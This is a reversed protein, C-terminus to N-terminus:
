DILPNSDLAVANGGLASVESRNENMKALKDFFDDVAPALPGPRVHVQNPPAQLLVAPPANATSAVPLTSSPASTDIATSLTTAGPAQAAPALAGEGEGSGHANIVNIVMLADSASIFNDSNVDYYPPPNGAPVPGPGFANLYNIITLADNPAVVGNNDVDFPNNANQWRSDSDTVHLVQTTTPFGGASATITTSRTGDVVHDDVATITFTASPQNAPIVVSVPVTAAGPASSVLTVTLPQSLDANSRTVTGTATGNREPISAPSITLALSAAASQVILQYGGTANAGGAMDGNGTLPDYHINTSNSVGIYYTGAAAFTYQLHADFGATNEGPAAANDNSALQTGQATFLRLYSDLGGPGNQATDIDFDVTQGAAVTFAYMDVDTDPSISDSKTIPTTSIVGLSSAESIADDPDSSTVSVVQLTLQYSGISDPGGATDGNGTLPDYQTNNANSVGIYYTGATAFTYRLYSDFGTQSEGPAAADNNFTIPQGQSNFLWLFSNLGGPGNLPTDIDFDVMQGAAVTFSYLDVDIDTVISDNITTPATSLAGLPHAESLSDDTDIPLAQVILTYDGIANPGGATDGDGTIPNYQTNNANSVGIYYTGGTAFTFRLYADFGVTPEGPAAADNNFALQTGQANFLRLYSGLGGPGNQPTDIDFDVVQNAAVTFKYMNVDTDASISASVTVPTTSLTGLPTAEALTDNPDAASTGVVQVNLQYNGITNFGGATDGDGTIPNYRANNDNSVGIYYTGGTAFTYRLYADFGVTTEGPAAADDNLALQTGSGDFLRLYSGLGGPGNEPTDIDFDVTQGAAVTFGYMDVDVAPSISGSVSIVSTSLQGLPTAEVLSDDHDDGPPFNTDVRTDINLIYNGTANPGGATDGNGTIPDYNTNNANSVSIYYTGGAAFRFQLYSDFGNVGDNPGPANNNFALQQGQANFLRLYSDLGGPGNLPTHIDFDLIQGAQITVSYIDVDTDSSISDPISAAIVPPSVFGPSAKAITDDPDGSFAPAVQVTLQYSGISNQGGATDGAGSTANYQTNNANSVGLYYTGASTFTFRFYSDLGTQNEDPAAANDNFTLQQGQANFLRLYSDLGGPGNLPTDIDFDVVQHAAVTFKYMDVDIDPDISANVTVPTTSVPGLSTAESIADDTDIPLAQVTLTYSGTANLGGSTDGNGTLPDYQINNANSVGIYYTGAATFTFRLYADFGVTNEGPAAADNNFALQTGQSNFLRLYSGLGGPGNLTTDIDFDIVQGATVTFKYMDVDADIGINDKKIVPTTTLAGLSIAESIQDDPDAPVATVLSVTLEYPGISYLGGATDGNGTLPDYTTNNANSVGIYFTGGTTFTHRLYADFGVTNEGPAAGDNNFDIQTGQSNFLRLYSGLGGPGNTPTDIDFDVTQGATVTFKYLDVDIDTVISDDKVIPTTSLLGLVTAESLSDDTDVPLARVTLTYGGTANSGGATDGSGNLANYQINNANSVGIYYTGGSTFSFRLYADFGVTNEGPAAADNNSALQTGQANFLRLYSGLGGPGNLPTDIDFDVVQASTVSFRYMDVDTDISISDSAVTPTTTIAGLLISESISDDPDATAM